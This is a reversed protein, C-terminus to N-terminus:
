RVSKKSQQNGQFSPSASRKTSNSSNVTIIDSHSQPSSQKLTVVVNEQENAIYEAKFHQINKPEDAPPEVSAEDLKNESEVAEEKENTTKEIIISDDTDCCVEEEILEIHNEVTMQEVIEEPRNPDDFLDLEAQLRELAEFEGSMLKDSSSLMTLYDSDLVSAGGLEQSDFDLILVILSSLNYFEFYLIPIIKINYM